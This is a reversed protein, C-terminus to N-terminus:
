CWGQSWDLLHWYYEAMCHCGSHRGIKGFTGPAFNSRASFLQQLSFTEMHIWPSAITFYQSETVENNNPHKWVSLYMKKPIWPFHRFFEHPLFRRRYFCWVPNDAAYQSQCCCGFLAWREVSTSFHWHSHFVIEVGAVRPLDKVLIFTLM